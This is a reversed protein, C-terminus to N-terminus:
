AAEGRKVCPFNLPADPGHIEWAKADYAFAAAIANTTPPSKWCVGDRKLQARFKGSATREVGRLGSRAKVPRNLCNLSHDVIRLNARRNDLTNGNIHDVLDGKRAGIIMRHMYVTTGGIKTKAYYKERAQKAPSASWSFSSVLGIDSEDILAWQGRSTKIRAM